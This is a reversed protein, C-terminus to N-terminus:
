GPKFTHKRFHRQDRRDASLSFFVHCSQVLIFTIRWSMAIRLNFSHLNTLLVKKLISSEFYAIGSIFAMQHCKCLSSKMFTISINTHMLFATEPSISWSVSFTIPWPIDQYISVGATFADGFIQMKAVFGHDPKWNKRAFYPFDRYFPTCIHMRM